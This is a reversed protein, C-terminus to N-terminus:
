FNYLNDFKDMMKESVPNLISNLLIFIILGGSIAFLPGGILFLHFIYSYSSILKRYKLPALLIYITLIFPLFLFLFIFFLDYQSSSEFWGLNYPILILMPFIFLNMFYTILFLYGNYLYDSFKKIRKKYVINNNIPNQNSKILDLYQLSKENMITQYNSSYSNNLRKFIDVGLLNKSLVKNIIKKYRMISYIITKSHIIENKNRFVVCILQMIFNTILNIENIDSKNKSQHKISIGDVILKSEKAIELSKMIETLSILNNRAYEELEILASILLLDIAPKENYIKKLTFLNIGISNTIQKIKNM